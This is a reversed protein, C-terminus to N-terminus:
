DDMDANFVGEADRIRQILERQEYGTIEESLREAETRRDKMKEGFDGRKAQETMDLIHRYLVAEICDYWMNPRMDYEKWLDIMDQKLLRIHDMGLHQIIKSM